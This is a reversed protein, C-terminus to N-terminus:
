RRWGKKGGNISYLMAKQPEPKFYKDIIRKEISQYSDVDTAEHRYLHGLITEHQEKTTAKSYMDNLYDSSFLFPTWELEAFQQSYDDKKVDRYGDFMSKVFGSLMFESM